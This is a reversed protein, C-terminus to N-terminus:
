RIEIANEAIVMKRHLWDESPRFICRGCEDSLDQWYDEFNHICREIFVSCRGSPVAHPGKNEFVFVQHNMIGAQLPKDSRDSRQRGILRDVEATDDIFQM